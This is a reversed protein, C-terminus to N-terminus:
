VAEATPPKLPYFRVSKTIVDNYSFTHAQGADDLIVFVSPYIQTIKGPFSIFNNRGTNVKFIIRKDKLINVRKVAIDMEFKIERM